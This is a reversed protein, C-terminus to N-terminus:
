TETSDKLLVGSGAIPQCLLITPTKGAPTYYERTLLDVLERVRDRRTLVMMCGGLGAGALQAGIVGNAQLALDVMRDIEPLSCFYRGPQWQLQARLVREPDGSDLDEILTLLHANSTPARYVREAGDPGRAAVRDGDHSVNMLRGIEPIRGSKLCDAFVRARECEALGYLVVGRIPYLGDPPPQHTAFFPALDEGPLLDVLEERTAQEPLHLLIKYISSLPVGLNRANVDRLHKLLPAYHPFSQRILRFGIRYCAIRHNFQDRSNASKRAKIGSDCVALVYEDPFPVVDQVAFGFFTVKIIKGKQGLKVAAHDASGGRTGVFWEGEGCLDILQAPFTDLRNATITAEATAVVLSSSSSLGAAMPVNGTVVIDMGRLKTHSFKKQLRLVAAMAYQAWDGGKSRVLQSVKESNVVDLWDDWPLDRLMDGISFERTGFQERDLSFLRIRDDTRPHVAMLTEYSITMLNCNGGQHDIHRGMINVRGPSRVLFVRADAGLLEGAYDLLATCAPARDQLVQAQDSYTAVLEDWLRQATAPTGSRIAAFDAQWESITRNWPAAPLEVVAHDRKRSQIHEEVQLLEAPDNFGMISFPNEVRLARTRFRRGGTDAGANLIAVVDSLYREQQANDRTLHDLAYRLARAKVLYVSNNSWPAAEAQAPTVTLATGDPSLLEFRTRSEPILALLEARPPVHRDVALTKWLPGLMLTMKADSPMPGTGAIRERLIGMVQDASPLDGREVLLRLDRYFWRLRIDARELIAAPTRDHAEVIRGQGSGPRTPTCPLAVDCGQSYYLEFLRELVVDDILRDGAVLLVDEEAGLADLARLGVEAADATGLQESQYAFSVNRFASGVTEVVQGAMSGVVIIHHHIGCRNYRDIARNIVPIGDVPFCVKPRSASQMRTGKGAALIIAFKPARSM